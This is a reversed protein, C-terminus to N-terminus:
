LVSDETKQSAKVTTDITFPKQSRTGHLELKFRLTVCFTDDGDEPNRLTIPSCLQTVRSDSNNLREM